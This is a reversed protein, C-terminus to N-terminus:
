TTCTKIAGKGSGWRGAPPGLYHVWGWPELRCVCVWWRRDDWKDLKFEAGADQTKCQATNETKSVLVETGGNTRRKKGAGFLIHPGPALVGPAARPSATITSSNGVALTANENLGPRPCSRASAVPATKTRATIVTVCWWFPKYRRDLDLVPPNLSPKIFGNTTKMRRRRFQVSCFVVKMWRTLMVLDVRTLM